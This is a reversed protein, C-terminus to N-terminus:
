LLVYTGRVTASAWLLWWRGGAAADCYSHLLLSSPWCCCRLRLARLVLACTAVQAQVCWLSLFSAWMVTSLTLTLQSYAHLVVKIAARGKIQVTKMATATERSATNEATCKLTVSNVRHDVTLEIVGGKVTKTDMSLVYRCSPLCESTCEFKYNKAIDVVDPGKIQTHSPGASLCIYHPHM